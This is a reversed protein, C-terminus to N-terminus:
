KPDLEAKVIFLLAMFIIYKSLHWWLYSLANKYRGSSIAM